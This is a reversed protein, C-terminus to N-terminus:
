IKCGNQILKETTPLIKTKLHYRLNRTKLYGAVMVEKKNAVEESYNLFPYYILVDAHPKGSRLVYQARQAYQNIDSIYKWFPNNENIDSSFDIGLASNYFPYWGEKPYGEPFYRYPTGHYIVQNVGSSFLKDFTLKIKQPTTMYARKFYVGTESSVIPRNHLHAGSTILKYGNESGKAFLMTEVEPISTAGAAAIIDMNLGYAQTRHLMGRSETWNKSCNLFHKGLLDSLTLDYDYRLRWDQDSFKFDPKMGPKEMRAYMNNYGFWLNVPLYPILAYGRNKEFESLFDNSFHRDAKFEYSDNFIARLTKGYHRQLGTREGFLYDYNKIVKVSDFHNYVYGPNRKAIIMPQEMTPVSWIAIAKWNNTAVSYTFADGTVKSSIDVVSKPDLILSEGSETSGHETKAVLLAVLQAAPDDGRIPRPINIKASQNSPIDIIGYQLTLNGDEKQIHSGGPPGAVEM